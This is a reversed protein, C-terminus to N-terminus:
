VPEEVWSPLYNRTKNLILTVSDECESLLLKAQKVTETKTKESEVVLHVIDLMAALRPTPSTQHVPPMDFIIYDYDSAKLRPLFTSMEKPLIPKRKGTETQLTALYLNDQVFASNRKEEELVDSLGCAPNGRRFPHLSAGHPLNLDVLLVNGDGTESLTAALGAAITTAGAGRSCSTIGILKPKHTLNRKHFYTVLRDRLAECYDRMPHSTSWPEMELNGGEGNGNAEGNNLLLRDANKLNFRPVSLFPPAQFKAMVQAPTKVSQDLVLEILFALAIGGFMGAALVGGVKKMLDKSVRTPTSASEVVSINSIKGPGLAEEIRTQELGQSFIKYNLEALEKTRQIGRMSVEAEDLKDAEARLKALQSNLVKIKNELAPIRTPDLMPDFKALSQDGSGSAASAMSAMSAMLPRATPILFPNQGELEAKQKEAEAIQGRLQKLQPNEETYKVRLVLEQGRFSSLQSVITKYREALDAQESPSLASPPAVAAAVNTANTTTISNALAAPTVPAGVVNTATAAIAVAAPANTNGNPLTQGLKQTEKQRVRTEELEAEAAFLDQRIKSMQEADAKKSEEVSLVGAKRRLDRLQEDTSNLKARLQDTQQALFDDFVGSPRHVEEHKKLYSEVLQKLVKQAVQPDSHRFMVLIVNSKKPVDVALNKSIVFAALARDKSGPKGLIKDPGVLDAVQEALDSSTLIQLESNIINEGRGDPSKVQADNAGVASVPQTAERVYRLLLRAESQYVPPTLFYLCAAGAIGLLALFFIKKKHRFLVYYIDRISSIQSQAQPPQYPNM